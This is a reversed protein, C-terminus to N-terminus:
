TLLTVALLILLGAQGILTAYMGIVRLRWHTGHVSFYIGHALRGFTFVLALLGLVGTSAGQIEGLLLLILALPMQEAANGQGRIAKTVIRDAGDGLVIGDRRRLRIVTWTLWLFLAGNAIAALSTIPLHDIPHGKWM